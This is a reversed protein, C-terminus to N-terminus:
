IECVFEEFKGSPPLPIRDDYYVFSIKFEHGLSKCIAASLLAEQSVSLLNEVVFRAEILDASKQILQYQQVPAIDRYLHFGVLPWRKQGNIVAMNRERGKITRLTPMTRRCSCQGAVEAYDGIVYRIIPMAYNSLDTVVVRGVEGEKCAHGEDNIIEVILNEDCIHYLGSQPCQFAIYGIEQSSYVDAVSVGLQQQVRERLSVSLTEGITRIQKLHTLHISRSLLEDLLAALNNPYVLLYDPNIKQLWEVQEAVPRDIPCGFAPGSEFLLQVPEGWNRYQSPKNDKLNARLAVLTGKFDRQHWIHERLGNALWYQQNLATRKVVVPEGSSGSTRSLATMGHSEPIQACYMKEGQTQLERRTLLPFRRLGEPTAFENVSMGTSKLRQDFWSSHTQAHQVLKELNQYQQREREAVAMREAAMLKELLAKLPASTM